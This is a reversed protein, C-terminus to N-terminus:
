ILLISITNQETQGTSFRTKVATCVVPTGDCVSIFLVAATVATVWFPLVHWFASLSRVHKRWDNLPSHQNAAPCVGLWDSVHYHLSHLSTWHWIVLAQDTKYEPKKVSKVILEHRKLIKDMKLLKEPRIIVTEQNKWTTCSQLFWTVHWM